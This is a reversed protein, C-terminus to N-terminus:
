AEASRQAAPLTFHFSGYSGLESWMQGGHSEVITRSLALGLGLGTAKGSVFPEFLRAAVAPAVGPGTDRVSVRVHGSASRASTVTVRRDGGHAQVSEVANAVLNRVVLEIQVKDARTALGPESVVELAIQHAQCHADLQQRVAAIITEVDTTELQLAGTQFFERLRRVVEAARGSERVMKGVTEGLLPGTEGRAILHECARGYAALATMPQNLEHALAAAMDGAASLRSSRELSAAAKRLEDIPVGIFFGVLALAAGFMQLEAFPLSRRAGGQVMLVLGIQLVFAVLGAGRLGHRASAWIMPVFLFYFHKFEHTGLVGNSVGWVLFMALLLYAAAEPSKLVPFLKRRGEPFALMWCLPMTMMVGVLDGVSYRGASLMMASAPVFGTVTLLGVYAMGNVGLGCVVIGFWVLLRRRNDLMETEAFFLRLAEGILGYGVVLQVSVLLTLGWGLPLGRVLYDSLVLAALWPLAARWRYRLWIVLGFGADPNWPTINLQFLPEIYSIWDLLVYLAIFGLIASSRRAASFLHSAM